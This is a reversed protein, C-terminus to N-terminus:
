REDISKETDRWKSHGSVKNIYVSLRIWRLDTPLADTDDLCAM